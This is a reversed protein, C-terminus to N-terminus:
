VLEKRWKEREEIKKAHQRCYEGRPGFGRKRQCQFSHFGTFDTVAAICRSKDEPIGKENGAWQDYYHLKEAM